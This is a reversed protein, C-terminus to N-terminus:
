RAPVFREPVDSLFERAHFGTAPLPYLSARSRRWCHAAFSM